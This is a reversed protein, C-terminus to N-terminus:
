PQMRTQRRQNYETAQQETMQFRPAFHPVLLRSWAAFIKRTEDPCRAARSKPLMGNQVIGAYGEPDHGYVMCLLNFYRQENLSHEDAFVGADKGDGASGNTGFWIAAMQLTKAIEDTSERDSVRMLIATAALQDVSDEERGTAPLALLDILAHGTEHLLIFRMNSKIYDDVFQPDGKKNLADASKKLYDLMEYCLIVASDRPSYFANVAGCEAAVYHLPRPLVFLGDMADIEPNRLFIDSDMAYQYAPRLAATKPPEFDYTFRLGRGDASVLQTQGAAAPPNSPTQAPASNGAGPQGPFGGGSQTPAGGGTSANGGQNPYGGGTTNGGQAPYGGGGSANNGGQAPYGGGGSATGGQGPFGGGGQGPYGTEGRPQQQQPAQQATNGQGQQGNGMSKALAVLNSYDPEAPKGDPNFPEFSNSILVAMAQMQPDFDASWILDYGRIESGRQEYRSYFKHNGRDGTTIFLNDRRFNYTIRTNADSALQDYFGNIQGPALDPIRVTMMSVKGDASDLNIGGQDSKSSKTMLKSPYAVTIHSTPEFVTQWGVKERLSLATSALRLAQQDTFEGSPPEGNDRQWRAISDRTGQGFNGDVWGNYFGLWVLGEQLLKLEDVNLMREVSQGGQAYSSNSLLASLEARASGPALGLTCALTASALWAAYRKVASATTPESSKM